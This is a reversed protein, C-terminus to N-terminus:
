AAAPAARASKGGLEQKIAHVARELDQEDNYFSMSLRLAGDKVNTVVRHKERLRGMLQTADPVLVNIIQAREEWADPTQSDLGAAKLLKLCTTTLERVRREIRELGVSRLFEAGQRFVRIGLFNPNGGEFRHATRVYDFQSVVHALGAPEAAPQKVFDTRLEKVLEERCYVIGSGTLGLLGKHGGSAIVDAGLADLRASLIGIGQVGDVVLRAGRERCARGLEPLNVRYGNGYTVYATSVVRTRADMCELFASLPLRGERNRAFRIEVGKAEWHKWVWVNAVHELDTLVVNDGPRLDFGHAAINLGETTNKTFALESPKAGLLQAMAARTEAVNVASWADAGANEYVDRCYDQMAREQCRPPITKRACDLYTWNALTPFEKRVDSWNPASM